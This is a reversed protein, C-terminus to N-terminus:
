RGRSKGKNPNKTPRTRGPSNEVKKRVAPKAKAAAVRIAKAAAKAKDTKKPKRPPKPPRGDSRAPAEDAAAGAEASAAADAAAAGTDTRSSAKSRGRVIGIFDEIDDTTERTIWALAIQTEAVGTVPRSVVDKRGYLRAISHPVILIGVGAAVQEMAEDLDRMPPLARRSGDRVEDALDRWEPVDDPNQLLHEGALDALLVTESQLSAHDKAGVAVPIENYLNIVSLNTDDIPLRVLSVEARGDHLVAIQEATETRFVTLPVDPRRDNWIRTWKTPTVGAVFAISFSM